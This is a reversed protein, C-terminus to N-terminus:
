KIKYEKIKQYLTTRGIGLIEAALKKNNNSLELAKKIHEKEIDSLKPFKGTTYFIQKEDYIKVDIPLHELWIVDQELLIMGQRIINRLERINGPFHHRNLFSLATKSIGKVKKNLEKNFEDIFHEVLLPIDEERERLPPLKIVVEAIRWFLDERFKKERVAERLDQNTASLIRVDIYIPRSEGLRQLEHNEIVRLIKSQASISLDAIEDLFVTGKNASEIKGVRDEKADTFAGKKYGFLESELLTEPIAACNVAVFPEKARQSADHIAKALMDKGTGTEGLILINAMSKAAKSSINLVEFMKDSRTIINKFALDQVKKIM